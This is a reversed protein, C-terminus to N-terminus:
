WCIGEYNPGGEKSAFLSALDIVPHGNRFQELSERFESSRKAVVILEANAIADQVSLKM